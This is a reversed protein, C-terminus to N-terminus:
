GNRNALMTNSQSHRRRKPKRRDRNIASIKRNVWENLEKWVPQAGSGHRTIEQALMLIEQYALVTLPVQAQRVM